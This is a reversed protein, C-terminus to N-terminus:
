AKIEKIPKSVNKLLKDAEAKEAVYTYLLHKTKLKLKVHEEGRVVRVEDAKEILKKFSKADYIQRPM